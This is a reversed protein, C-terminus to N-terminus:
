KIAVRVKSSACYDEFQSSESYLDKLVIEGFEGYLSVRKKNTVLVGGSNALSIKDNEEILVCQGDKIFAVPVYRTSNINDQIDFVYFFTILLSCVFCSAALRGVGLEFVCALLFLIASCLWIANVYREYDEPVLLYSCLVVAGVGVAIVSAVKLSKIRKLTLVVFEMVFLLFFGLFLSGIFIDISDGVVENSLMLQPAIGGVAIKHTHRLNEMLLFSSLAFGMALVTLLSAVDGASLQLQKLKEECEEVNYDESIVFLERGM